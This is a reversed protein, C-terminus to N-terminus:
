SIAFSLKEKVNRAKYCLAREPGLSPALPTPAESLPKMRLLACKNCNTVELDTDHQTVLSFLLISMQNSLSLMSALKNVTNTCTHALFGVLSGVLRTSLKAISDMIQIHPEQNSNLEM